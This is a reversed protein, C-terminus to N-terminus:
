RALVCFVPKWIKQEAYIRLISLIAEADMFARLLVVDGPKKLDGDSPAALAVM